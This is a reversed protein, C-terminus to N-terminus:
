GVLNYIILGSVLTLVFKAGNKAVVMCILRRIPLDQLYLRWEAAM